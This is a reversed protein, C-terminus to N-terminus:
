VGSLTIRLSYKFINYLLCFSMVILDYILIYFISFVSNYNQINM